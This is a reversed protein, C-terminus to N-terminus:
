KSGQDAYANFYAAALTRATMLNKRANIVRLNSWFALCSDQQRQTLFPFTNDEIHVPLFGFALGFKGELERYEKERVAVQTSYEKHLDFLSQNITSIRNM